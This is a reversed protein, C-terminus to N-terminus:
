VSKSQTIYSRVEPNEDNLLLLTAFILDLSYEVYDM